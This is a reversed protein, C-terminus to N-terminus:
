LLKIINYKKKYKKNNNKKIKYECIFIILKAINKKNLFIKYPKILLNNIKIYKKIKLIEKNNLLLKINRKIIKKDIFIFNYMFIENNKILCFSNIINIRKLRIYKIENNLLVIGAIYKKYINYKYKLLTNKVINKM